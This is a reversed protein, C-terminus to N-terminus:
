HMAFVLVQHSGSRLPPGALKSASLTFIAGVEQALTGNTVDWDRYQASYWLM